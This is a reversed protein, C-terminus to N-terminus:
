RGQQRMLLGMRYGREYDPDPPPATAIPPPAPQQQAAMRQKLAALALMFTLQGPTQPGPQLAAAPPVQQQQLYQSFGGV